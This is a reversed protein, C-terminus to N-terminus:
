WGWGNVMWDAMQARTLATDPCFLPPNSSCGSAIGDSAAKCIWSAAWHGQPVDQFCGFAGPPVYGSGHLTKLVFISMQARTVANEPCYIGPGCGATIGERAFQEIWAAAWYWTPVDSFMGTPAPPTYTSGHEAKLLFVAMQARTVQNDPCYIGAGCGATIGKESFVQIDTYYSHGPPADTFVQGREIAILGSQGYVYEKALYPTSQGFAPSILPLLCFLFICFRLDM